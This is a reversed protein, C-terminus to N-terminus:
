YLLLYLTDGKFVLQKKNFDDYNKGKFYKDYDKKSMPKFKYQKNTYVPFACDLAWDVALLRINAGNANGFSYYYSVDTDKAYYITKIKNGSDNQYWIIRDNISSIYRVDSKYRLYNILTNQHISYASLIMFCLIFVGIVYQMKINVEYNLLIFLTLVSPLVGLTLAMRAATYNEAEAMVLNPVFPMLIASALIGLLLVLKIIKHNNKIFSYLFIIMLAVTLIYYYKFNIFGFLYHLSNPLLETFVKILNNTINFKGFKSAVDLGSLFVLKIIGLSALFSLGYIVIGLGLKKLLSIFKEKSDINDKMLALLLVLFFYCAIGQYCAVGLIMFILSIIYNKIGGLSLRCASLTVFLIGLGFVMAENFVLVETLLPEYFLMFIGVLGIVQKLKSDSDKFIFLYLKLITLALFLNLFFLTVFNMSDVPLHILNYFWMLLASFVRGNQMFWAATEKYGNYITCYSDLAHSPAFAPYTVIIGISFIVIFMLIKKKM